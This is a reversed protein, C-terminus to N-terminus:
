VTKQTRLTEPLATGSLVTGLDQPTYASQRQRSLSDANVNSRGSRYRISFDFAALQAAWRQETAGLKATNLHSLPNNDTWVVCKQGLLYDRFKETMAWKLALFELRMSSYNPMNRESQTLARSAYAVPRVRGNQEQSLVAGLGSLCADVELIFPLSFDAYALVPASVLRSKLNQFSEECQKTWLEGIVKRSARKTHSNTMEAVLRHLPAAIKAFGEVFRRYYSCFGLFSRLETVSTPRSWDVVALTKGPDTAVGERSIVHGLYNVKTHFFCCKELKHWQAGHLADLSEEIRPLPFADRRTKGNLQCYDVCMRLSGDKKKVLVIPSAYPSCSERIVQTELLQNIHAKVSDYDSPPIRRFRQRVPVDDLLPIEHAILDTCGLDGEFASFVSKHKMLMSRIKAQEAEPIHKLDLSDITDLINSVQGAQSSMTAVICLGEPGKPVECIGAPLSVIQAQNLMGLICHRYLKADTKGINVVPIYATGGHVTVMAPSVLLGSPLADHNALPEFLAHSSSVCKQSCTAAVLKVTGEPIHVPYRGRVRAVGSAQASIRVRVEHCKQLAKKWAEPAEKVRPSDFLSSTYQGFLEAYCERIVNMGLVGPIDTEPSSGPPDKVVLMGRKSIVTGLVSVDLEVYGM